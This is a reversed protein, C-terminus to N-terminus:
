SSWSMSCTSTCIWESPRMACAMPKSPGVRPGFIESSFLRSNVAACSAAEAPWAVLSPMPEDVAGAAPMFVASSSPELMTRGAGRWDTGLRKTRAARRNGRLRREGASM